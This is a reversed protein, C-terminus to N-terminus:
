RRVFVREPRRVLGPRREKRRDVVQVPIGGGVVPRQALGNGLDMTQVDLPDYAAGSGIFDQRKEALRKNPRRVLDDVGLVAKRHIRDQHFSRAARWHPHRLPVPHHVHVGDQIRHVRPRPHHEHGVGAVRGAGKDARVLHGPQGIPKRAIHQQNQVPGIDLERVAIVTTSRKDLRAFVDHHRPCERFEVPQATQPDAPAVPRM